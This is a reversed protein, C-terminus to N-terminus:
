SNEWYRNFRGCDNRTEVPTHMWGPICTHQKTTLESQSHYQEAGCQAISTVWRVQAHPQKIPCLIPVINHQYNKRHSQLTWHAMSELMSWKARYASYLFTTLTFLIWLRCQTIKCWQLLVTTKMLFRFYIWQLLASGQYNAIMQLAILYCNSLSKLIPCM